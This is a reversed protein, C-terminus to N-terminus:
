FDGGGGSDGGGADGGGGFDGGGGLDQFGGQDAMFDQQHAQDSFVGGGTDTPQDPPPTTSGFAQHQGGGFMRGGLWGGLLGGLIGGGFGRGFGGGAGPAGYGQNNYPDQQGQPNMTSGAPYQTARRAFMRRLLFLGILILAGWFLLKGFSFSPQRPTPIASPSESASRPGSASPAAPSAARTQETSSVAQRFADIGKVLGEDYRKQKFSALMTDRLRDRDAQTFTQRRTSEGVVVQLYSPDRTILVIAGGTMGAAKARQYGWASFFQARRQPDYQSRLESPISPYTEIRLDLGHQQKIQSLQQNATAVANPSFFGGEDVVEGPAALVSSAYLLILLPFSPKRM